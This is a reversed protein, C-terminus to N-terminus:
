PCNKAARYAGFSKKGYTCAYECTQCMEPMFKGHQVALDCLHSKAIKLTKIQEVPLEHTYLPM